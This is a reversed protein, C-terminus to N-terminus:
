FSRDANSCEPIGSERQIVKSLALKLPALDEQLRAREERTLLEIEDMWGGENDREGEVDAHEAEVERTLEAIEAWEDSVFEGSELTADVDKKKIDFVRIISKAVLNVVHLFCRARSSQGGFVPNLSQLEYVMADNNSANDCTVCLTQM